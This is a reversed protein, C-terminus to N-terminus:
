VTCPPTADLVSRPAARRVVSRRSRSPWAQWAQWGWRTCSHSCRHHRLLPVEPQSLCLGTHESAQPSRQPKQGRVLPTCASVSARCGVFCSLRSSLHPLRRPLPAQASPSGATSPGEEHLPLDFLSGILVGLGRWFSTSSSCSCSSSCMFLWLSRRWKFHSFSLAEQDYPADSHVTLCIPSFTSNDVVMLPPVRAVWARNGQAEVAKRPATHRNDGTVLRRCTVRRNRPRSRPGM